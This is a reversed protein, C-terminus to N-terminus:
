QKGRLHNWTRGTLASSATSQAVGVKKAAQTVTIGNEVMSRLARVKAPTLKSQANKEGRAQRGKAVCDANNAQVDGAFLHLPNVCAPVDCKHCVFHGEPISGHYAEYTVRHTRLVNKHGGAKIKGHGSQFKAGTWIICENPGAVCRDLVREAIFPSLGRRTQCTVKPGRRQWAPILDHDTM